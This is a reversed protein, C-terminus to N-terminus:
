DNQVRDIKWVGDIKSFYMTKNSVTESAGTSSTADFQVEDSATTGSEHYFGDIPTQDFSHCGTVTIQQGAFDTTLTTPLNAATGIRSQFAPTLDSFATTSAFRTPM